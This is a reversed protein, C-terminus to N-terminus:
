IGVTAKMNVNCMTGGMSQRSAFQILDSSQPRLNHAREKQLRAKMSKILDDAANIGSIIAMVLAVIELGSVVM